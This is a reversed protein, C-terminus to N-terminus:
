DGLSRSFNILDQIEPDKLRGGFPPMTGSEGTKGKAIVDHVDGDTREALTTKVSLDPLKGKLFKAAPGDGKGTEGHCGQCNRKFLMQGNSISASPAAKAVPATAPGAQRADAALTCFLVLVSGAALFKGGTM